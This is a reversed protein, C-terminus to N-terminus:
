VRRHAPVGLRASRADTASSRRAASRRPAARQARPPPPAPPAPPARARTAREPLATAQATALRPVGPVRRSMAALALNREAAEVERAVALAHSASQAMAAVAM